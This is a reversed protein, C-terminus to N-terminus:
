IVTERKEALTSEPYDSMFHLGRSEHRMQASRIIMFAVAIINRLECLGVSVRSKRYFEETEEYLLRTRRAARKLRLVSRVIGVYDWMVRRIEDQNHSILVWEYPNDTGGDDWDPVEPCCISSKAVEIAKEAARHSIVLAELLSNSALRNAGHLGTSAVEGCALLGNISTEGDVNTQVGGCMYHAAPVVPIPDESMDFGFTRCTRYINPFHSELFDRSKHTIDLLVNSEGRSKLQDDIARAVIDRPALEASQDYAPMFRDGSLNLLRAGEGRVAESILFSDAEEHFLTTPHFQVFEMNALRAKARYAMAIGDGTAVEPNTTHLYVRGAGGTALLTVKALFTIIQDAKEDYIYAGFCNIDPRLRTVHQGIHHETILEMAFHHEFLRINPHAKVRELLSRGVEFGTADAAHVIRHKQHGGERGLHLEGGGQETFSAGHERLSEIRAPGESVVIRVVDPDCLGAGAEITDRVHQDFSDDDQFVAAIGGQAYRTNSEEAEKKTVVAVIGHDAVELAFSLGAAGSGLVLFDFRETM